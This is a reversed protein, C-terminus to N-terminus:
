RSAAQWAPVSRAIGDELSLFPEHYGGQRLASVDAETFSQYKGRLTDPFPIYEIRGRGLAAILTRAVDNFSRSKGTGVNVIAQRAPGDAFFLNVKAVDGVFVFDRRQEGDAYSDTGAFLRAVGTQVLQKHLQFVMSSMKGKHQERPGYVNFYRLGVVTSRASPLVRRVYQDFVCKSFAYVNIPKENQPAERSERSTGYVSGSSAYVFPISRELAFQLLRKSYTFNSEMMYQGDFEMTDVCAGQHLIATAPFDSGEDAIVHLFEHRDMYDAIRCDNLNFFKEGRKLDDVVVIDTVGRDNLARVINSGIFGAGGTVVYM